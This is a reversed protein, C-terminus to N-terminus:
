GYPEPRPGDHYVYAEIDKPTDELVTFMYIQFTNAPALSARALTELNKIWVRQDAEPYSAFNPPLDFQTLWRHKNIFNVLKELYDVVPDGTREM